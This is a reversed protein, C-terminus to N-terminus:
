PVFVLPQYGNPPIDCFPAPFFIGISGKVEAPPKREPAGSLAFRPAHQNDKGTARSTAETFSLSASDADKIAKGRGHGKNGPAGGHKTEPHLAEYIEQLWRRRRM